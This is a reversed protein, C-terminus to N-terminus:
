AAVDDDGLYARILREDRMVEQAPGDAIKRGLTMAILRDAIGTLAELNHEIVVLTTGQDRIQRLMDLVEAISGPDVGGLPEDLLLVQPRTTLARAIDLRKRQGTSAGSSPRDLCHSLGVRAIAQEAEVRAARVDNTRTLAAITANEVFSMSSFPRPTQFTRVLGLRAIEHSSRTGLSKGSLLVDGTNRPVDGCIVGFLTSKGAGNPGVIGLIENRRVAFSVESLANLGGFRVSVDRVELVAEM